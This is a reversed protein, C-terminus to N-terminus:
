WLNGWESDKTNSRDERKNGEAVGPGEGVGKSLTTGDMITPCALISEEICPAIYKEKEM